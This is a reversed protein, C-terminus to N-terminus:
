RLPLEYCLSNPMTAVYPEYVDIATFGMSEYLAVSEPQARGTQLILRAAGGERARDIVATVVARAIGRGRAAPTVVLRKLEWEDGLRRLMVHGVPTPTAATGAEHPIATESVAIWTAVIQEPHVRLADARARTVEAPETGRGGGYRTQLEADLEHRLAIARPDDHGVTELRFAATATTAADTSAASHTV